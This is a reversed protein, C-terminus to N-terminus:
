GIATVIECGLLEGFFDEIEATNKFVAPGYLTIYVRELTKNKGEQNSLKVEVSCEAGDVEFKDMLLQRIGVKLNQIEASSYSSNFIEDYNTSDNEYNGMLDGIELENIYEIVGIMPNISVGVVCIAIILRIQRSIGGSEGDPCLLSVLTGVICVGIVSLVYGKM